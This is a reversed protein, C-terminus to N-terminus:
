SCLYVSGGVLEDQAFSFKNKVKCVPMECIGDSDGATFWNFVQMIQSPSNCVISARIPDLINSCFPWQGPFTGSYGRTANAYELIKGRMRDITKVPASHVDVQGQGELFLCTLKTISSAKSSLDSLGTTSSSYTNSPAPGFLNTPWGAVVNRIFDSSTTRSFLNPKMDSYHQGRVDLVLDAKVGSERADLRQLDTGLTLHPHLAAGLEASGGHDVIDVREESDTLSNDRVLKLVRQQFENNLLRARRYLQVLFIEEDLFTGCDQMNDQEVLAELRAEDSVVVAKVQLM